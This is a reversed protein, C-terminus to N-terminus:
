RAGGKPTFKQVRKGELNEGTYVNGKSDVAISGLGYFTGPWRGGQGFTGIEALTDRQLVRVKKNQGDAVFIYRQQPDSSFALDWVSGDGGTTKAVAMEKVFKGDKQFVQIRDNGRDCVYVMGDKAIEVCTVSRFQKAPEANPDYAALTAADDPKEGYAGWHRKYAGTTADFVVIRRNVFGDAVFVENAATDVAVAAPRNLATTSDSGGTQGAKGIQMVFQGTKSFKIVHSDGPGAPAAAGGGRGAGGGRQAAPDGGRGAGGRAPDTGAGGGRAADPAAGGRRGAPSVGEYPTDASPAPTGRGRGAAPPPNGGAVIWVNGKADVTIGYPSQPWDYGEGKGGWNSVVAGSPDFELVQPAPLCCSGTPPDLFAGKENNGLSDAGRHSIWIHDQADVSVGTVSGLIWHNPLPKPWLPDVQYSPATGTAGRAPATGRQAVLPPGSIIVLLALSGGIGLTRTRNM